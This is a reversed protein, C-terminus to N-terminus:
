SFSSLLSPTSLVSWKRRENDGGANQSRQLTGIEAICAITWCTSRGCAMASSLSKARSSSRVVMRSPLSVRVRFCSLQVLVDKVIAEENNYVAAHYAHRM